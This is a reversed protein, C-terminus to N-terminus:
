RSYFEVVADVNVLGAIDVEAARGIVTGERKEKDVSVWAPTTYKKLYIDLDGLMGKGRSGPRISIADGKKVRFSPINVKRGNVMIHGHSIMQRAASRTPQFGMRFVANDLRSELIEMLLQATDGTRRRAEMAYGRFQRERLGYFFKLKQKERLQTGFESLTGRGHKARMGHEGPPYPKRKFACKERGCVSMGVRRCIKCSIRM